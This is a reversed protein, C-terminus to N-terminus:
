APTETTGYQEIERVGSLGSIVGAHLVARLGYRYRSAPFFITAVSALACFGAKAGALGIQVPRSSGREALLRGHTQGMRFRRRALWSLTARNDPVPEYVWADASFAFRGGALKVLSFFETDEGGSKGLALSFRRGALPKTKLDLLVNCTYGTCIEGSIWVPRTSHIDAHKMWGPAPAAYEAKVPGLVVDVGTERKQEVLHVLWDPSATEDDDIFALLDSRSHDLCANRAISINGAPCHVYDLEFPIQRRMREILPRASAVTDNDAVIIRLSAGAPVHLNALSRLTAELAPRRFTCVAIDILSPTNPAIPNM